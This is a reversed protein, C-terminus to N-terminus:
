EEGGEEDPVTGKSKSGIKVNVKEKGEKIIVKYDGRKYVLWKDGKPGQQHDLNAENSHIAETLKYEANEMEGSLGDILTRKEDFKDAWREIAAIKKQEFGPIEVQTNKPM